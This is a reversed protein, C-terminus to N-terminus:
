APIGTIVAQYPLGGTGLTTCRPRVYQASVHMASYGWGSGTVTDVVTYTSNDPSTELVTVTDVAASAVHLGLTKYKKTAGANAVGTGAAVATITSTIQV